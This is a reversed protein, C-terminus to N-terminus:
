PRLAKRLAKPLSPKVNFPDLTEGLHVDHVTKRGKVQLSVVAVKRTVDIYASVLRVGRGQLKKAFQEIGHENLM